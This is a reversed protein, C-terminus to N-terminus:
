QLGNLKKSVEIDTQAQMRQMALMAADASFSKSFTLREQMDEYIRDIRKIREDDTMELDGSTIVAILEDIGGLCEGLLHNFVNQLYTIEESTFQNSASIHQVALKAEKVIQLQFSTIDAVKAWSKIKPNVSKLSNFFDSHLNFDGRKIDHITQLGNQAISYGKELYQVYIENAAIQQLLYKIQTAKQNFWGYLKKVVDIDGKEAARQFSLMKNQDNFQRLDALNQEVQSAAKNIIEIRKADTMQTAFANIVLFVQDLNKISENLMGTYVNGMYTLEDSTFNDDQKFLAWASKYENV